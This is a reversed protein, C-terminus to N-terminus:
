GNIANEKDSDSDSDFSLKKQRRKKSSSSPAMKFCYDPTELEDIEADRDKSNKDQSSVNVFTSHNM